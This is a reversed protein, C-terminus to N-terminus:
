ELRGPAVATTVSANSVAKFLAIILFAVLLKIPLLIAAKLLDAVGICM